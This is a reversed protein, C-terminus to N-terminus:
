PLPSHLPAEFTYHGSGIEYVAASHEAGLFKVGRSQGAPRGSEMVAAPDPTPVHVTAVTNPPLGIAMSVRGADRRWHVTVPGRQTPVTGKAYDLGLLRPRIQMRAFAPALLQVGLIHNQIAIM